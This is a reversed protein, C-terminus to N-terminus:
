RAAATRAAANPRPTSSPKGRCPDPLAQRAPRRTPAEDRTSTAQTPPEAAEARVVELEELALQLQGITEDLQESRRGFQMRRLKAILLKLHEIQADREALRERQDIVLAQLTRIDDPLSSSSLM